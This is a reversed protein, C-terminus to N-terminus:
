SRRSEESKKLYEARTRVVVQCAVGETLAAPRHRRTGSESATTSANATGEAQHTAHSLGRRGRLIMMLVMMMMLMTSEAEALARRGLM